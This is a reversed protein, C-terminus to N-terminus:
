FREVRYGLYELAGTINSVIEEARSAPMDKLGVSQTYLAIGNPPTHLLESDVNTAGTADSYVVGGVLDLAVTFGEV